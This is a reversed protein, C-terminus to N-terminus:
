RELLDTVWDASAQAAQLELQPQCKFSHNADPVVVRTGLDGILECAREALAPEGTTDGGASVFLTPTRWSPMYSMIDYRDIDEILHSTALYGKDKIWTRGETALEDGLMKRYRRSLDASFSWMVYGCVDSREAGVVTAIATGLSQGHILLRDPDAFSQTGVWELVLRLDAAASTLSFDTFDGESYGCGYYDFNVTALGLRGYREAMRLFM